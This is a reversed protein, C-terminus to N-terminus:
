SYSIDDPPIHNKEKTKKSKIEEWTSLGFYAMIISTLAYVSTDFFLRYSEIDIGFVLFVQPILIVFILACLCIWTMRRRNKWWVSTLKYEELKEVIKNM